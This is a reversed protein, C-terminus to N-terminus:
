GTGLPDVFSNVYMGGFRSVPESQGTLLLVDLTMPRVILLSGVLGLRGEGHPIV